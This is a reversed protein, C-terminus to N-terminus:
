FGILLPIIMMRPPAPNWGDVTANGLGWPKWRGFDPYNRIFCVEAAPKEDPIRHKTKSMNECSIMMAHCLNVYFLTGFEWGLLTWKQQYYKRLGLHMQIFKHVPEAPKPLSGGIRYVLYTYIYIYTYRNKSKWYLPFWTVDCWVKGKCLFIDILWSPIENMDM